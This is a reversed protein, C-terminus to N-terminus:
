ASDTPLFELFQLGPSALTTLAVGALTAELAVLDVLALVSFTFTDPALLIQPVIFFVNKVTLEVSM